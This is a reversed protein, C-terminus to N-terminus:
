HPMLKLSSTELQTDLDSKVLFVLRGGLCKEVKSAVVFELGTRFHSSIPTIKGQCVRGKSGDKITGNLALFLHEPQFVTSRRM